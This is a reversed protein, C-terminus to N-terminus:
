RAGRADLVQRSIRDDVVMEIFGQLRHHNVVLNFQPMTTLNIRTSSGGGLAGLGAARGLGGPLAVGSDFLGGLSSLAGIGPLLRGLDSVKGLKGILEDLPGLARDAWRGIDRLTKWWRIGIATTTGIITGLDEYADGLKKGIIPAYKEAAKGVKVLIDRVGTTSGTAENVKENFRQWGRQMGDVVPGVYSAYIKGLKVAAKGTDNQGTITKSLWGTFKAAVPLFKKGLTAQMNEWNAGLKQQSQALTDAERAFAGQADKSQQFLLAVRAQQEAQLKQKGALGDLGKAHLYAAITAQKISVGYKEIPDTEGRMLSGIDEVAQKTSGGYQAALDAGLNLLKRTEGAYDKIGTNKLMAGTVVALDAYESKALGLDAAASKAWRKVTSANKGFVADIAGFSQEVRSAAGVADFGIKVIGGAAAAAALPGYRRAANGLAGGLRGVGGSSRDASRGLRDYGREAARASRQASSSDGLIDIRITASM